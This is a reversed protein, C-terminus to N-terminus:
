CLCQGPRATAGGTASLCINEHEISNQKKGENTHETKRATATRDHFIRLRLGVLVSRSIAVNSTPFSRPRHALRCLVHSLLIKLCGFRILLCRMPLEGFLSSTGVRVNIECRAQARQAGDKPVAWRQRLAEMDLLTTRSPVLRQSRHLRGGRHHM